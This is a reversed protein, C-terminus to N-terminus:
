VLREIARAAQQAVVGLTGHGGTRAGGIALQYGHETKYVAFTAVPQDAVPQDDPEVVTGGVTHVVFQEEKRALQSKEYGTLEQKPKKRTRTKKETMQKEMLDNQCAWCEDPNTM